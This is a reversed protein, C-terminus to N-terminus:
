IQEWVYNFRRDVVDGAPRAIRVRLGLVGMSIWEADVSVSDAIGDDILWQLAERAYERARALVETTQKERSLLWLRSGIADRGATAELTDGWWGRRSEGDVPLRDDRDARRDSFLSVILATDLDRDSDLDGDALTFDSFGEASNWTLRVDTM